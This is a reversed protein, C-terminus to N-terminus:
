LSEKDKDTNRNEILDVIDGVNRISIIEEQTFKVRFVEQIEEILVIQSLSDWDPITKADTNVTLLLTNNDFIERFIKELESLIDM